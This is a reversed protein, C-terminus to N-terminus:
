RGKPKRAQPKNAPREAIGALEDLSVGLVVAVSAASDLLPTRNGHEWEQYTRLPIGCAKALKAQSLGAAERFQKFRKAMAM